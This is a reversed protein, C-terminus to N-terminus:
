RGQNNNNEMKRAQEASTPIGALELMFKTTEFLFGGEKVAISEIEKAYTKGFYDGVAMPIAAPPFITGATNMMHNHTREVNSIEGKDYASETSILGYISLGGGILRSGVKVKVATAKSYVRPSNKSLKGHTYGSRSDEIIKSMSEAVYGSTGIGALIIGMKGPDRDSEEKNLEDIEENVLDNTEILEGASKLHLHDHGSLYGKYVTFALASNESLVDAFDELNTAVLTWTTGNQDRFTNGIVNNVWIYDGVDNVYGYLGTPDFTSVANNGMGVYPSHYQRMPDPSLWRGIRSDYNRYQFENWNTADNKRSYDGSYGYEDDTASSVYKRGPMEWGAPYYDTYSLVELEDELVEANNVTFYSGPNAETGPVFIHLAVQLTNVNNFTFQNYGESLAEKVLNGGNTMDILVARVENANIDSINISITYRGGTPLNTFVKKIGGAANTNIKIGNTVFTSTTNPRNSWGDWQGLSFDTQVQTSPNNRFVTRVNGIHDKIEYHYEDVEGGTFLATAAREIGNVYTKTLSTSGGAPKEYEALLKSSADYVRYITKQLSGNNYVEKQIALNREDYHNQERTQTQAHNQVTQVLGQPNYILHMDGLVDSTIRGMNDYGYNASSQNALDGFSATSVADSIHSISNKGSVIHYTFQDMAPNTGYAKRTLDTINGNLDYNFQVGFNDNALPSFTPLSGGESATNQTGATLSGLTATKLQGLVDYTYNYTPLNGLSQPLSIGTGNYWTASKILGTYDDIVTGNATTQLHSGAGKFDNQYYSLTEAFLDALFESESNLGDQGLEASASFANNISKLQGKVTYALDLGQYKNGLEKRTLNGLEDYKFAAMRRFNHVPDDSAFVTTLAENDNYAYKIYFDDAAHNENYDMAIVKGVNDYHYRITKLGLGYIDMVMWEVNGYHDYSYWTTSYANQSRSLRGRLKHQTFTTSVATPLDTAKTDYQYTTVSFCNADNLGDTTNKISHVNDSPITPTPEDKTFLMLVDSIQNGTYNQYEGTELPRHAKDYLTYSFKDNVAQEANQSFKLKGDAAYVFESAGEDPLNQSLLHGRTNYEYTEIHSNHVIAAPQSIMRHGVEGIFNFTYINEFPSQPQIPITYPLPSASLYPKEMKQVNTIRVNIREYQELNAGNLSFKDFLRAGKWPVIKLGNGFNARHYHITKSRRSGWDVDKIELPDKPDYTPLVDFGIHEETYKEVPISSIIQESSNYTALGYIEISYKHVMTYIVEIDPNDPDPYTAGDIDVGIQKNDSGFVSTNAMPTAQYPNGYNSFSAIEEPVADYIIHGNDNENGEGGSGTEGETAEDIQLGLYFSNVEDGIGYQPKYEFIGVPHIAMDLSNTNNTLAQVDISYILDNNSLGASYISEIGSYRYAGTADYNCNVGEPQVKKVLNGQADFYNIQWYNYDLAYVVFPDFNKRDSYRLLDWWFNDAASTLTYSIALISEANAYDGLLNVNFTRTDLANPDKVLTYDTGSIMTRKNFQDYITVDFAHTPYSLTSGNGYALRPDPFRLKLDGTKSAPVHVLTNTNETLRVNSMQSLCHPRGHLPARSGNENKGISKFLNLNNNVEQVGLEMYSGLYGYVWELETGSLMQFNSIEHGSGAKYEASYGSVRESEQLLDSSYHKRVYPYDTNSYHPTTSGSYYAGLTSSRAVSKPNYEEGLDAVGTEPMDFDQYNYTTTANSPTIFNPDYCFSNGTIPASFTQLAARGQRDYLTQQAIVKDMEYNRSQTQLTQGFNNRIDIGNSLPRGDPAYAVSETYKYSTINQCSQTSPLTATCSVPTTGVFTNGNYISFYMKLNPSTSINPFTYVENGDLYLKVNDYVVALKLEEVGDIDASYNYAPVFVTNGKFRLLYDADDINSIESPHYAIKFELDPEEWQLDALTFTYCPNTSTNISESIAINNQWGDTESTKIFGESSHELNTLTQWDLSQATTITGVM